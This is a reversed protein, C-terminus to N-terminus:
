RRSSRLHCSPLPPLVLLALPHPAPSLSVIKFAIQDYTVSRLSSFCLMLFVYDIYNNDANECM